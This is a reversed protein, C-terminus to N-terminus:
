MREPTSVGLLNLGNQLVQQTAKILCLRANRLNADPVIFQEANYYTHFIHAVERQYNAVQHPEYAKAAQAIVEPFRALMNMLDREYTNELLSLHALGIELDPTFGKELCQRFVSAIRAHAYQIYYVPNDNSQSKALELDFDMHQESRRTVYFFRAADKGVEERLERLTVFSGSRTSMQVREEGRYLVAFQVLLVHITDPNLGLASAAAKLRPIYGHHDSGVIYFLEEYGRESKNLLYAVDSAFYTTQGNERILVRDKDDGYETSRFWLAGDKEYLKNNARLTAIAHDIAGSDVLSKESFWEDYNVGFASLDERIDNLIADLTASFVLQYQESTLLTQLNKILGDVHAEKDGVGEAVEDQPVNNYLKTLDIKLQTGIKQHLQKAIDFVYDGSYGNSPFTLTEGLLELYRLYVSLTLISMQRGADNVYYERHVNFGAFTLLDCLTGGYAAGRGHGVHLPGTPNSSVFEINLKKGHGENIRGYNEKANLITPIISTFADEALYFNIFGPGAIEIKTVLDHEPFNEKILNALTQPNQKCPKALLMAINSSFDGHDKDKCREIQINPNIDSPILASKTLTELTQQILDHLLIKM